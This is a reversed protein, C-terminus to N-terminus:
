EKISNGCHRCFKAKKSVKQGCASCFHLEPINEPLVKEEKAEVEVQNVSASNLEKLRNVYDEQTIQGEVLLKNTEAIPKLKELQENDLTIGYKCVPCSLFYKTEYPIVPIFFLTVWTMVRTMVWYEENHCNNCLNKFVVGINKVTRRGWGFIIPM